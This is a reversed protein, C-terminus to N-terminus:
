LLMHRALLLLLHLILFSVAEVEEVAWIWVVAEVELLL